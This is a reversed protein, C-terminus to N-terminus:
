DHKLETIKRTLVAKRTLGKELVQLAQLQELTYGDIAGLWTDPPVEKGESLDPYAKGIAFLLTRAGTKNGIDEPKLDTGYTIAVTDGAKFAGYDYVLSTLNALREFEGRGRLIQEKLIARMLDELDTFTEGMGCVLYTGNVKIISPSLSMCEPRNSSICLEYNRSKM